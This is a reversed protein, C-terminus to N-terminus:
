RRCPAAPPRHRAGSGCEPAAAPCTDRNRLPAQATLRACPPAPSLRPGSARRGEEAGKHQAPAVNVARPAATKTDQASLWRHRRAGCADMGDGLDIARHRTSCASTRNTTAWSWSMCRRGRARRSAVDAPWWGKTTPASPVSSVNMTRAILTSVRQALRSVAMSCACSVEFFTAATRALWMERVTSDASWDNCVSIPASSLGPM